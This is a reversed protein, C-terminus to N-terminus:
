ASVCMGDGDLSDTLCCPIMLCKEIIGEHLRLRKRKHQGGFLTPKLGLAQRIQQIYKRLPSVFVM